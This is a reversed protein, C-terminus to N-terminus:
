LVLSGLVWLNGRSSRTIKTLCSKVAEDNQLAEIAADPIPTPRKIRAEGPLVEVGFHSQEAEIYQGAGESSRAPCVGIRVCREVSEEYRGWYPTSKQSIAPM